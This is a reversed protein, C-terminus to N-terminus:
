PKIFLKQNVNLVYEQKIIWISILIHTAFSFVINKIIGWCMATVNMPKHREAFIQPYTKCLYDDLYKNM